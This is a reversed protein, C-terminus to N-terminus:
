SPGAAPTAEEPARAKKLEDALTGVHTTRIMEALEPDHAAQELGLRGCIAQLLQLMKTAEQEALIGVQLNLHAWHDAQHNQRNQSMLVFTSLFVSELAVALNLLQYPYPDFLPLGAISVVNLVIWVSFWIVHAIMFTMSGVLRTIADSSRDLRSRQELVERELQSVSRINERATRPLAPSRGAFWNRM